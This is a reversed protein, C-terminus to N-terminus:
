YHFPQVFVVVFSGAVEVFEAACVATGVVVTCAASGSIGAAEAAICPAVAAAGTDAVAVIGVVVVVIYEVAATGAAAICVAFGTGPEVVETDVASGIRVVSGVTRTHGAFGVIGVAALSRGSYISYPEAHRYRM